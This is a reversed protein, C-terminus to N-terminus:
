RICNQKPFLLKIAEFISKVSETCDVMIDRKQQIDINSQICMSVQSDSKM